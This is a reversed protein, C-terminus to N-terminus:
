FRIGQASQKELTKRKLTKEQQWYILNPFTLFKEGPVVKTNM